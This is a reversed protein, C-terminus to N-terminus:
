LEFSQSCSNCDREPDCRAVYAQAKLNCHKVQEDKSCTHHFVMQLKDFEQHSSKGHWM